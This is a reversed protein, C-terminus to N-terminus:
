MESKVEIVSNDIFDGNSSRTARSLKKEKVKKALQNSFNKLLNAKESQVSKGKPLSKDRGILYDEYIFQRLAGPLQIRKKLLSSLM